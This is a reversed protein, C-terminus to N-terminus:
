IKKIKIKITKQARGAGTGVKRTPVPDAGPQRDRRDAWGQDQRMRAAASRASGQAAPYSPPPLM